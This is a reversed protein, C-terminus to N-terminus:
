RELRLSYAGAGPTSLKVQVYYWGGSRVQYGLRKTRGAGVTQGALMQLTRLSRLEVRKTGPKWLLMNTQTGRPGVVTARLRQGRRLFVRYVDNQDDWYDLTARIRVRGRGVTWARAGADDNPELRDAPPTPGVALARLAGLVDLRGWGTLSDRSSTCRRCGSEPTVDAASRELITRVQGATLDPSENLLLAAAAAVQPAAFSTGEARRYELPGCPSYGQELCTSRQSTMTEPLTSVIETGPAALDNYVADRNSFLPVSGDKAVASVGIVHPLAAPYGAYLWPMAPAQDGNGVAAVVVAGKRVAYEIASAELPSYTDRRRRFPDRVGGFSLNIVRAGQDVAWRIARAEAELSVTGDPRVVKAVVLQAPFAIGAIGEVNNLEAAILGSVFTGHGQTDTTASGGVFSRAYAIRNRLDPHDADVGSDVVAVLVGSLGPIHSWFDFARIQTLYWQRAVLADNPVFSLRRARRAPVALREVYEVGAVARLEAADPAEVVVAFPALVSADRGTSAEVREVLEDATLGPGVGLAFRGAAATGPAALALLLATLVLRRM